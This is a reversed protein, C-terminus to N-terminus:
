HGLICCDAKLQYLFVLNLFLNMVILKYCFGHLVALSTLLFCWLIVLSHSLLNNLTRSDGLPDLSDQVKARKM